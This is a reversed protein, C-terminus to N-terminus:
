YTELDALNGTVIDRLRDGVTITAERKDEYGIETLPLDFSRLHAILNVNEQSVENSGPPVISNGADFIATNHSLYFSDYPIADLSGYYQM